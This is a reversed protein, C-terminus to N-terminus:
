IVVGVILVDGFRPSLLKTSTSHTILHMKVRGRMLGTFDLHSLAKCNQGGITFM